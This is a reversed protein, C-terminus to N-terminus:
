YRRGGQNGMLLFLVLIVIVIVIVWWWHSRGFTLPRYNPDVQSCDCGHRDMEYCLDDCVRERSFFNGM